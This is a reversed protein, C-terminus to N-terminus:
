EKPEKTNLHRLIDNRNAIIVNDARLEPTSAKKRDFHLKDKHQKLNAKSNAANLAANLYQVAVEHNRARYKPEITESDLSQTEFAAMAADYVEQFQEEIESDKCDFDPVEVLETTRHVQEVLTTGPDLDLVEEMPHEIIVEKTDSM